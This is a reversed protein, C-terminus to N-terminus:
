KTASNQALSRVVQVESFKSAYEDLVLETGDDSPSVVAIIEKEGDQAILNAFIRDLYGHRIENLCPLIISIRM